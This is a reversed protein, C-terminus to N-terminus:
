VISHVSILEPQDEKKENLVRNLWIVSIWKGCKIGAEYFTAFPKFGLKQHFYISAKNPETVLAYANVINMKKMLELLRSYLEIGVGTHRAQSDLYITTEADFRYASREFCRHAYAYGLVREGDLAVLYPYFSSIDRIRERFESLSPLETEFTIPTDIYQAYIDLLRAADLQSAFRIEMRCIITAQHFLTLLLSSLIGPCKVRTEREFGLLGPRMQVLPM